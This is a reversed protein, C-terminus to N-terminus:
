FVSFKFYKRPNEKIDAVLSRLERIAQTAEVYLASDAVLKGLTGSQSELRSIVSDAGQIIREVSGRNSHAVSVIEGLQGVAALLGESVARTNQVIDSLQGDRTASDVRAVTAQLSKATTRVLSSTQQVDRSVAGIIETQQEAFTNIRDAVSSFDSISRQLNKVAQDDFATEIRSSFSAIDSAIRGAQATLQGIDPLAAGPWADDGIARAADLDAKVNPDNFTQEGDVISAQWEGFLSASAAIVAPQRPLSVDVDIRLETEVWNKDGLRIGSVRGIRVGALVVPDGVGLGGVSRFRANFIRSPQGVQAESLWIAGAILLALAVLITAGVVIEDRRKM